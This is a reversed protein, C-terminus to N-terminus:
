GQSVADGACKGVLCRVKGVPCTEGSRPGRAGGHARRREQYIM